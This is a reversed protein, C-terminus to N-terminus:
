ASEEQGASDERVLRGAERVAAYATRAGPFGAGALGCAPTPSVLANAHEASFGWRSYQDILRAAAREAVGRAEEDAPPLSPVVGLLLRCGADLAEGLAEEQGAEMTMLDVSILRSGARRLLDVPVRPDCCHVGAPRGEAAALAIGLHERVRQEDVARYTAIGSATSVGGALVTPLSPEDLQLVLSARPLRRAVDALHGRIAEALAEALERCAGPDRIAREGTRMEINAALTWPGALQLKLTTASAALVAEIGDLDEGLWSRARAMVRGPSDAFRWGSPTTEVALDGAVESLLGMTRGILDAGPGRQPLEPVHPFDPLEGAITRSWEHSDTGPVSGIGTAAAPPIPLSDSM